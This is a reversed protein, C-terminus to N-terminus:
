PKGGGPGNFRGGPGQFRRGGSNGGDMQGHHRHMQHFRQMQEPTLHARMQFYTKLRLESVQKQLNHLDNLLVRAQAENADPSQMYSMLAQRKAKLQAQIAQSQIKAQDQIDKVRQLQDPTLGMQKIAQQRHEGPRGQFGGSANQSLVTWDDPTMNESGSEFHDTFGSPGSGTPFPDTFGAPSVAILCMPVALFTMAKLLQRNM